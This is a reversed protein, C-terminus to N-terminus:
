AAVESLALGIRRLGEKLESPPGGFGLRFGHPLGFESGPMVATRFKNRLSRIFGDSSEGSKRQVYATIGGDPKVWDLDSRERIFEEVLMLNERSRRRAWAGIRDLGGNRYLELAAREPIGAPVGGLVNNIRWCSWVIEKPGIGWGLRLDGLGYVKTLSSTTLLRPHIVAAPRRGEEPLFDLYVEDVLVYAGIEEAKDTMRVLFEAPVDRGSPNHLRCIVVLKVPPRMLDNFEDFDLDFKRELPRPLPVIEAGTSAITALLPEYTPFEVLARDGPGLLSAAFLFNCLSTGGGPILVQDGTVGYKAAIAEKLEPNGYSHPEKGDLHSLTVGLEALTYPCEIGSFALNCEVNSFNMAKVAELYHTPKFFM